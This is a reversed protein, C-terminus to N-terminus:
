SRNVLVCDGVCHYDKANYHERIYISFPSQGYQGSPSLAKALDVTITDSEMEGTAECTPFESILYIRISRQISEQWKGDWILHYKGNCNKPKLIELTLLNIHRSIAKIETDIGCYAANGRNYDIERCAGADVTFKYGLGEVQYLFPVFSDSQGDDLTCSCLFLFFALRFFTVMFLSKLIVSNM